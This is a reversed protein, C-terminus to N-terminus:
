PKAPKPQIPPASESPVEVLHWVKNGLPISGRYKERPTMPGTMDVLRFQRLEVPKETDTAEITLCAKGHWEFAQKITENSALTFTCTDRYTDGPPITAVRLNRM